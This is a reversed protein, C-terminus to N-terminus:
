ILQLQRAKEIAQIRKNVLLKRYIGKVHFQVTNLSLFLREGIEQYSQGSALLRLVELERESLLEEVALNPKSADEGPMAGLLRRAYVILEYDKLRPLVAQLLSRMLEGEDLFIRFFGRPASAKLAKEIIDFAKEKKGEVHYMLAQVIWISILWSHMGFGDALKEHHALHDHVERLSFEKPSRAALRALINAVNLRTQLYVGSVPDISVVDPLEGFGGMWQTVWSHAVDLMIQNAFPEHLSLNHRLAQAFVAIQPWNEELTELYAVMGEQDGQVLRLRALSSYCRVHSTRERLLHVLSLGQMLAQESEAIRNEELLISGQMSYLEGMPPFRRGALFRNFRDINEECLQLAEKLEGKNVKILILAMKGYIAAYWNGGAVGYEVVQKYAKEASNLDGLRMYAYGINLANVSRIGNEDESLLEQARQSIAIINGPDEGLSVLGQMLYAQVSAIHGAVLNRLAQDANSADLAREASRTMEEIENRRALNHILASAWAKYIWMMPSAQLSSEPLGDFWGMVTSVEGQYLMPMAYQEILAFAKNLRSDRLAHEVAKQILGNKEFWDAARAHLENVREPETQMLQNKLLEAFLAHFRYWTREEDLAILFLNNSELYQLYKWSAKQGTVAECLSPCLQDLISTWRLFERIEAPQSNLVEEILYDLVHRHTGRFAEVFKAKDTSEKMSLAALQLGAVWGETRNELIEVERIPLNVGMVNSFFEGAEDISFSLDAARIETLQNRVRLRTLPLGPDERTTIVLHLKAVAQNLLLEIFQDIRANEILHYDELVLIIPQSLEHLDNILLGLIQSLDVEQSNEVVELAAQGLDDEVQQLATLVYKIFQKLDNDSVELSVWAVSFGAKGAWMRVTTTKGYGAPASVLTLLHGDQIGERLQKLIKERPVVLNRMIPLNVKTLLLTDPM